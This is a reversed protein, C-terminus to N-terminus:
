ALVCLPCHVGGSNTLLLRSYGVWYMGALSLIPVLAGAALFLRPPENQGLSLVTVALGCIGLFTWIVAFSAAAVIMVRNNVAEKATAGEGSQKCADLNM